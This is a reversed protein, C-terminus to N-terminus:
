KREEKEVITFGMNRLFEAAEEETCDVEDIEDYDTYEEPDVDDGWMAYFDDCDHYPDTLECECDGAEQTFHPCDWGNVPCHFHPRPKTM